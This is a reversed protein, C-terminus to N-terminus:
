WTACNGCHFFYYSLLLTVYDIQRGLALHTSKKLKKMKPNTEKLVINM